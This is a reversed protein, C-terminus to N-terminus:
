RLFRWGMNVPLGLSLEGVLIQALKGSDIPKLLNTPLHVVVDQFLQLCVSEM